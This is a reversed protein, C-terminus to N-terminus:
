YGLPNQLVHYRVIPVFDRLADKIEQPPDYGRTPFPPPGLHPISVDLRDEAVTPTPSEEDSPATDEQILSSDDSSGITSSTDTSSFVLDDSTQTPLVPPASVPRPPQM